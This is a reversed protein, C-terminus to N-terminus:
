NENKMYSPHKWCYKTHFSLMGEGEEEQEPEAVPEPKSKSKVKAPKASGSKKSANSAKSSVRSSASVACVIINFWRTILVIVKDSSIKQM